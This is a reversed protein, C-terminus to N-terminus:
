RTKQEKIEFLDDDADRIFTLLADGKPVQIISVGADRCRRLFAALNDVELCVHELPGARRPPSGDIFVEFHVRDSLYNIVTLERDIDFLAKSLARPLTKPESKKLGLVSAFFRDANEESSCVLAVHRLNM